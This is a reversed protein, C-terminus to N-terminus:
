EIHQQAIAVFSGGLQEDRDALDDVIEVYRGGATADDTDADFEVAVVVLPHAPAPQKWTLAEPLTMSRNEPGFVPAYEERWVRAWRRVLRGLKRYHHVTFEADGPKSLRHVEPLSARISVPSM